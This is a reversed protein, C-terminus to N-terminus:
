RTGPASELTREPALARFTDDDEREVLGRETLTRLVGYVTLTDLDLVDQLTGPSRPQEVLAFYVLKATSSRLEALRADSWGCAPCSLLGQVNVLTGTCGPCTRPTSAARGEAVSRGDGDASGAERYEPTALDRATAEALAKRPVPPLEGTRLSAVADPAGVTTEGDTHPYVALLRDELYLALSLVPTVLVRRSGDEVLSTATRLRFAPEVSVGNDDAWDVFEDYRDVVEAYPGDRDVAVEAPWSRVALDGVTGDEECRRLTEVKADVPELLLPARVHCVTSLQSPDPPSESM